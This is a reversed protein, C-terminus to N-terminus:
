SEDAGAVEPRTDFRLANLTAWRPDPEGSCECTTENLDVGCQPCLGRCARSCLPAIPLELLVADHVMALLDVVAGDFDYADDEDVAGAVFRESVPVSLEGDISTSCRRCVGRWPAQVTGRARLGGSYSEIRLAVAVEATAPVDSEAPGRPTFEGDADFPATFAIAIQAPEDRILQTVPVLYPSGV